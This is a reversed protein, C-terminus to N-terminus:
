KDLLTLDSLVAPDIAEESRTVTGAKTLAEIHAAVAAQEIEGALEDRIDALPPASAIRTEKVLILHWGFDTQVPGAVKGIEAAKVADEFPKVMSGQGFWGLDGGNVGSGTDTSNAKALAAFDAGGEIQTKLNKAEEETAVLIHAANYETSPEAGKFRADYAAQLAQDTVATEVVAGLAVSSLYSRKQNEIQLEDYGSLKGALSQELLTQQILQDLIGKYLVDAPLAKYQEPLGERLVIMSGLTIDTGNVTAVVTAAGPAEALVPAALLAQLALGAWIGRLKAM